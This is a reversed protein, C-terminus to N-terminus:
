WRRSRNSAIPAAIVRSPGQTYLDHRELFGPCVPQIREIEGFHPRVAIVRQVFDPSEGEITVGRIEVGLNLLGCEFRVIEHGADADTRVLHEQGADERIGIGVPGAHPDVVLLDRHIGGPSRHM